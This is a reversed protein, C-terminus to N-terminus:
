VYTRKNIALSFECNLNEKSLFRQILEADNVNDELLLIKLLDKM